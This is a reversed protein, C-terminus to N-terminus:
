NLFYAFFVINSFLNFTAPFWFINFSNTLSLSSVVHILQYNESKRSTNHVLEHLLDRNEWHIENRGSYKLIIKESQM